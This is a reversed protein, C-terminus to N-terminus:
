VYEFKNHNPDPGLNEKFRTSLSIFKQSLCYALAFNRNTPPSSADYIAKDESKRVGRWFCTPKVISAFDDITKTRKNPLTNSHLSLHYFGSFFFFFFFLHKTASELSFKKKHQRLNNSHFPLFATIPFCNSGM